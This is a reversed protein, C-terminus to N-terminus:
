NKLTEEKYAKQDHWAGMNRLTKFVTGLDKMIQRKMGEM